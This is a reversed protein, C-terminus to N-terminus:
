PSSNTKKSIHRIVDRRRANDDDYTHAFTKEALKIARAVEDLDMLSFDDMMLRIARERTTRGYSSRPNGLGRVYHGLYGITLSWDSWVYVKYGDATERIAIKHTKTNGCTCTTTTM